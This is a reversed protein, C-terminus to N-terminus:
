VVTYRCRAIGDIGNQYVAPAHIYKNMFFVHFFRLLFSPIGSHPQMASVSERVASVRRGRGECEAAKV